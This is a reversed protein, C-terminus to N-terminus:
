WQGGLYIDQIEPDDMLQTSIGQKVIKGNQMVYGRNSIGLAAKAHQEVLLVSVGRQPLIEIVSFIEQTIMPSLGLSPEDLMLLKPESMLARGIALMQQEGGSLSGAKQSSREKLRPFLQYVEEMRESVKKKDKRYLFAGLELNQLVNLPAFIERGQPVHILRAKVFYDYPKHTVNEGLYTINGQQAPILASITRLLTTKGAGNAGIMSVIEKEHVDLTLNHLVKVHGYGSSLNEIRLM